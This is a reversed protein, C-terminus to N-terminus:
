ADDSWDTPVIRWVKSLEQGDTGVRITCICDHGVFFQVETEGNMKRGMATLNQPENHRDHWKDGKVVKCNFPKGSEINVKLWELYPPAEFEPILRKIHAAHSNLIGNYHGTKSYLSGGNLVIPTTLEGGHNPYMIDHIKRTGGEHLEVHRGYHKSLDLGEPPLMSPQENKAAIADAMIKDCEDIAMKIVTQLSALKEIGVPIDTLKM